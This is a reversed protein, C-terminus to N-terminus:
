RAQITEAVARDDVLDELDLARLIARQAATPRTVSYFPADVGEPQLLNLHCTAMLELAAAASMPNDARALEHELTRCLLLGLMCLSVHARVKPDTYHWVPRIELVSKIIHFDKELLDKARYLRCLDAASHRVDPHAVILCFGDYRRRRAWVDPKLRVRVQLCSRGGLDCDEITIEFVDLLEGKRLHREVAAYASARTHRTWPSRLKDNLERVHTRVAALRRDANERKTLLIDPNFYVVVRVSPPPPAADVRGSRTMRGGSGSRRYGRAAAEAVRRDFALRQQELDALRAVKRLATQSVGRARGDLVADQLDIALKTLLLLDRAAWKTLGHLRGVDRLSTAEGADLQARMTQARRMAGVTPDDDDISRASPEQGAPARSGQASDETKRQLVGLDLVFLNDQVREMGAEEAASGLRKCAQKRRQATPEPQVTVFPGFPIRDGGYADFENVTLATVFHLGTDIVRLIHATKGMARDFVLPIDAAWEIGAISELMDTMVVSDHRRGTVVQWQLPYGREDCLAVIGIKRRYLGEKTKSKQAAQPGRGVFWTDTVDLFMSVFAGHRRSVRRAIGAQIAEEADALHALARHIRTNNFRPPALALLEPLASTPYWRQALLKSGPAVCRQVVLAAIVSAFPEEAANGALCHALLSDLGWAQWLRFMVAVDLYRLNAVVPQQPLRSATTDAVVLAQGARSAKFAAKLNVITQPDLRGLNAIVRHAPMGDKPRRYSEVLQAYAYTKGRRTVSSTRIHM